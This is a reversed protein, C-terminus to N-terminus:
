QYIMIWLNDMSSMSDGMRELGARGDHRARRMRGNSASLGLVFSSAKASAWPMRRHLRLPPDCCPPNKLVPLVMPFGHSFWLFSDFQGYIRDGMAWSM